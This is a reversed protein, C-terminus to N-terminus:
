ETLNLRISLDSSFIRKPDMSGQIKKWENLKPYTLSFMDSSQRSDKALYIRGGAEAIKIDLAFLTRDLEPISLPIDVAM